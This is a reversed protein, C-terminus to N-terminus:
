RCENPCMGEYESELKIILKYADQVVSYHRGMPNM